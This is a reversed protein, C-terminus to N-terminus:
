AANCTWARCFPAKAATHNQYRQAAAAERYQQTRSEDAESLGSTEFLQEQQLFSVFEAPDEPLEPVCVDPLAERVMAREFPNDDLFVMADLGINLVQRIHLINDVKTERNAVFVAIDEPQLVMDPHNSFADMAIRFDNKSCVALLIGRQKLSRAWRQLGSFAKGAGANGLELGAMGDNGITGGWLTNDLDLM